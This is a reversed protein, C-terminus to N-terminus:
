SLFVPHAWIKPYAPLPPPFPAALVLPPREGDRRGATWEQEGLGETPSISDPCPPKSWGGGAARSPTPTPHSPKGARGAWGEQWPAPNSCLSAWKEVGWGIPWPEQCLDWQGLSLHVVGTHSGRGQQAGNVGAGEFEPACSGRGTRDWQGQWRQLPAGGEKSQGLRGGGGSHLEGEWGIGSVGKGM